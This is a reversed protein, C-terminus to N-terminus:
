KGGFKYQAWNLSGDAMTWLREGEDKGAAGAAVYVPMLHELTPHASKADSRRLLSLMNVKRDEPRSSAADKLADDFSYAYPTTEPATLGRARAARFDNLNHVAMGAGIILIGEDRLPALAEGLRYHEEPDETNFLSVQM